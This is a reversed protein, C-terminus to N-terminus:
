ILSGNTRNRSINLAAWPRSLSFRVKVGRNNFVGVLWTGQKGQNQPHKGNGYFLPLVSPTIDHQSIELLQPPAADATYFRLLSWIKRNWGETEFRLWLILSEVAKSFEKFRSSSLAKERYPWKILNMQEIQSMRRMINLKQRCQSLHHEHGEM